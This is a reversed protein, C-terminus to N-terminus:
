KTTEEVPQQNGTEVDSGKDHRQSRQADKASERQDDRISKRYVPDRLRKGKETLASEQLHREDKPQQYNARDRDMQRQLVSAQPTVCKRDAAIVRGRHIGANWDGEM